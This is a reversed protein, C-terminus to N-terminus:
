PQASWVARPTHRRAVAYLVDGARASSEEQVVDSLSIVGVCLGGDEVVVLRSKGTLAMKREVSQVDDHPRCVRVDRTMILGVPTDSARGDAVVRLALDRDTVIGIVEERGDVVPLFGINNERMVQACAMVTDTGHCRLVRTKMVDRCLLM